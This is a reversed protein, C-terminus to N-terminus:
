ALAPAPLKAESGAFSAASVSSAERRFAPIAIRGSTASPVVGAAAV